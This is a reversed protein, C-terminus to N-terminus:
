KSLVRKIKKMCNVCRRYLLYAKKAPNDNIKEFDFTFIWKLEPSNEVVHSNNRLQQQIHRWHITHYVKYKYKIYRKIKENDERKYSLGFKNPDYGEALIEMVTRYCKECKCCNKGGSSQWCVRLKINKNQKGCYGIINRIKDPRTSDGGDHIVRSDAFRVFNDITPDSACTVKGADKAAFTSAIYVVDSNFLYALPAAHGILGIGHQFGHWWKDGAKKEVLRSLSGENLFKRFNSKICCYKVGFQAATKEIHLKVNNWGTIDGFPVDAGWLTMLVPKEDAHNVLTNFSDVGGSFFTLRNKTETDYKNEIIEDAILKGKFDIKPYMNIYGNKFEPISEYFSKDVTKVRIEADLLWAIPLVNCLFPVTLISDPITAIDTNLEGKDGIGYEIFFKEDPNFYNKLDESYTFNYLVTNKSKATETVTIKREAM